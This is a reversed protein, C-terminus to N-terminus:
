CLFRVHGGNSNVVDTLRRRWSKISNMIKYQPYRQWEYTIWRRLDDLNSIPHAYVLDKLDAFVGYDMVALDSSNPPWQESTIFDPVRARIFNQTRLARHPPASDQQFTWRRGGYYENVTEFLPTLIHNQYYEANVTVGHPVFIPPFKSNYSCAFFVMMHNPFNSKQLLLEHPQIASKNIAYVRSNQKNCYEDVDFFTEDSFVIHRINAPTFRQLLATARQLRSAKHIETLKCVRVKRFPKVNLDFKLIRAVSRKSINLRAALRKPKKKPSRIRIDKSIEERVAAINQVTRATRRRNKPLDQVTDFERWKRIVKSITSIALTIDRHEILHNRISRAGMGEQLLNIINYRLQLPVRPMM